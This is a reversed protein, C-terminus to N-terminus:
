QVVAHIRSAKLEDMNASPPLIKGDAFMAYVCVNLSM